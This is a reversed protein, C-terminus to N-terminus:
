FEFNQPFLVYDPLTGTLPHGHRPRHSQRNSYLLRPKDLMFTIVNKYQVYRIDNVQPRIDVEHITGNNKKVMVEVLSGMDFQVMSADQVRDMDVQVNYEFLDKWEGGPVRVRVTYDDNHPMGTKLGEPYTVLQAQAVACCVMFCFALLKKM